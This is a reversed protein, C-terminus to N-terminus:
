TRGQVLRGLALAAGAETEARPASGAPLPHLHVKLREAGLRDASLTGALDLWNLSGEAACDARSAEIQIQQKAKATLQDPGDNIDCALGAMRDVRGGSCHWLLLRDPSRLASWGHAPFERALGSSAVGWATHWRAGLKHKAFERDVAAAVAAPLAACVFPHHANWDGAIRWDDPTGGYLHACRAQAVQRLEKFSALAAPPTQVWHVALDNAAIVEVTTAAQLAPGAQEVAEDMALVPGNRYAYSRVEGESSDSRESWALLRRDLSVV